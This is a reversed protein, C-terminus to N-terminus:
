RVEAASLGATTLYERLHAFAYKKRSLLTDRPVRACRAMTQIDHGQQWLLVAERQPGPL